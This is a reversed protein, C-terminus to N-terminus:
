VGMECQGFLIAKQLTAMRELKLLEERLSRLHEYVYVYVHIIYIYIYIYICVYICMYM